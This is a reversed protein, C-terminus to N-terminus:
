YYSLLMNLQATTVGTPRNNNLQSQLSSAGYINRLYNAQITALNYGSVPDNVSGLLVWNIRVDLDVGNENFDDVLNIFLSTYIDSKASNWYQYGHHIPFTVNYAITPNYGKPNEQVTHKMCYHNM